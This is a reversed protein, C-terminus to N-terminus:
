RPAWWEVSSSDAIAPAPCPPFFVAEDEEDGRPPVLGVQCLM